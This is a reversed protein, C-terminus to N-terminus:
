QYVTDWGVVLTDLLKRLAAQSVPKPVVQNMGAELARQYSPPHQSFCFIKLADQNQHQLARIQRTAAIGDMEPMELDMLVLDPPNICTILQKILDRGNSAEIMINYAPYNELILRLGSRFLREDDVLAIKIENM